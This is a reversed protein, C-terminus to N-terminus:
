KLVEENVEDSEEEIDKITAHIQKEDVKKIRLFIKLILLLPKNIQIQKWFYSLLTISGLQIIILGLTIENLNKIKISSQFKIICYISIIVTNNMTIYILNKIEQKKSKIGNMLDLIFQVVIFIFFLIIYSTVM